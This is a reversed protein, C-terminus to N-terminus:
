NIFLITGTEKFIVRWADLEAVDISQLTTLSHQLQFKIVGETEDVM